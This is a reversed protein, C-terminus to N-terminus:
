PIDAPHLSSKSRASLNYETMRLPLLFLCIFSFVDLLLLLICKKSNDIKTITGYKENTIDNTNDTARLLNDYFDSLVM